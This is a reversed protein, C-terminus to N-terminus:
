SNSLPLLINRQCLPNERHIKEDALYQVWTKKEKINGIRFMTNNKVSACPYIDGNFTVYLLESGAQCAIANEVPRCAIMDVASSASIKVAYKKNLVGKITSRYEEESVGIENWCFRARGHKILKLLRVEAVDWFHALQIIKEICDKNMKTIVTNFRVEIGANQMNEISERTINYSGLTQTMWDHAKEDHSYVSFYCIRLGLEALRNAQDKSVAHMKGNINMVGSTFIGVSIKNVRKKILMLINEFDKNLLPEGGTFFVIKGESIGSLFDIMKEISYDFEIGVLSADSSCHRCMLLCRNELEFHIEM